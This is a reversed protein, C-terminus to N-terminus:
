SEPLTGIDDRDAWTGIFPAALLEAGTVGQDIGQVDDTLVSVIVQAGEPLAVNGDLDIRGNHVRGLYDM